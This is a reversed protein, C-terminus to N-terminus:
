DVPLGSPVSDPKGLKGPLSKEDTLSGLFAVLADVEKDSLEKPELENAAAINIWEDTSSLLFDRANVQDADTLVVEEHKFTQLAAIPDLHHRVVSHLDSYAGTHGYPATHEVNRLSPTRFRYRDEEKGTENFRGYDTAIDGKLVNKGPGFQPMAIAHFAQDTFLSGSHCSACEGKGYFITMGLKQEKTLARRKGALYADFPANTSQWEEAVFAGIANAIDVITMEQISQRDPYAALFPAEYAKIQRFRAEIMKWGETIDTECALGVENEAATGAMEVESTMPFLAQAALASQLGEPLKDGAPTRFGSPMSPDIEVRGDHFVNMIDKAGLNFLAPANRPVRNEVHGDGYGASREPGLNEGGEGIGLSLGDSSGLNPHHCTACAINRNGSLEKDFFILQGLRAQDKSVEIFDSKTLRDPLQDRLDHARPYAATTACLAIMAALGAHLQTRKWTGM